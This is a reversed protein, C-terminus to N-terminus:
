EGLIHLQATAPRISKMRLIEPIKAPDFGQKLMEYIWTGLAFTEICAM